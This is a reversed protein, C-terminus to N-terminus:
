IVTNPVQLGTIQTNPNELYRPLSSEGEVRYVRFGAELRKTSQSPTALASANKRALKIGEPDLYSM